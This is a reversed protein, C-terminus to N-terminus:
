FWDVAWSACQEASADLGSIMLGSRDDPGADFLHDGGLEAQLLPVWPDGPSYLLRLTRRPCTLGPVTAEIMQGNLYPWASTESPSVDVFRSDIAATRVQDLFEGVPRSSPVEGNFWQSNQM